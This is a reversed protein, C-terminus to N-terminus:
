WRPALTRRAGAWGQENVVTPRVHAPPSNTESIPAPPHSMLLWRHYYNVAVHGVTCIPRRTSSCAACRSGGWAYWRSAATASCLLLGRVIEGKPPSSPPFYFWIKGWTVDIPTPQCWCTIMPLDEGLHGLKCSFYQVNKPM